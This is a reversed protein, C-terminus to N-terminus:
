PKFEVYVLGFGPSTAGNGGSGVCRVLVEGLAGAALAVYGSKVTGLAAISVSPGSAGDLYNWTSGSDTSYQVAFVAGATGITSVNAVIRAQTYLSLDIWARVSTSGGLETVALPM